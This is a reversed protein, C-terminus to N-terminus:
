LLAEEGENQNSISELYAWLLPQRKFFTPRQQYSYLSTAAIQEPTLRHCTTTGFPCPIIDGMLTHNGCDEQSIGLYKWSFGPEAQAQETAEAAAAAAAAFATSRLHQSLFPSPPHTPAEEEAGSYYTLMYGLLWDSHLCFEAIASYKYFLDLVSMGPRFVAAEGFRNEELAPCASSSALTRPPMPTSADEAEENRDCVIPEIWQALM